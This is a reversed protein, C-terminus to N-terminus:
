TYVYVYAHITPSGQYSLQYLIRRCHLLDRNLEQTPFIGQFLSLSGVGLMRPSGQHSLQHLIQWCQSLSPNLVQTPVIGQLLSLSGVGPNQGPSNWLRYLGHPRLPDSIVSRSESISPFSLCLQGLRTYTSRPGTDILRAGADM